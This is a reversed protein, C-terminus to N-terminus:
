IGQVSAKAVMKVGFISVGFVYLGSLGPIAGFILPSFNSLKLNSRAALFPAEGGFMCQKLCMRMPRKPM